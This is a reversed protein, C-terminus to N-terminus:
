SQARIERLAAEGLRLSGAESAAAELERLSQDRRGLEKLLRARLLRAQLYEPAATTAHGLLEVARAHDERGEWYWSELRLLVAHVRTRQASAPPAAPRLRPQRRDVHRIIAIWLLPEGRLGGEEELRIPGSGAPRTQEVLSQLAYDLFPPQDSAPMKGLLRRAEEFEARAVARFLRGLAAASGTAPLAALVADFARGQQDALREAIAKSVAPFSRHDLLITLQSTVVLAGKAKLAELHGPDAALVRDFERHADPARGLDAYLRALGLHAAASGPEAEIARRYLSEIAAVEAMASEFTLTGAFAKSKRAAAEELWKAVPAIKSESAPSPPSASPRTSWVVASAALAAVAAAATLPRLYSRWPLSKASRAAVLAQAFEEAGAPRDERRPSIARRCLADLSRPVDKRISRPGPPPGKKLRELYDAVSKGSVPLQGTLIEFLLVGLAYVDTRADISRVDGSLQEPAMYGPTGLVAGTATVTSAGGDDSRAIGFDMIVPRGGQEVLINSPKLDRHIIGQRHIHDLAKAVTVLRRLAEERDASGPFPTGDVFEMALFTKGHDRGLEHIQVVNPHRVQALFRGERLFRRAPTGGVRETDFVKLAVRRDLSPDRAEYVSGGSGRSIERVIEYRGLRSSDEEPVEPLHKLAAPVDILDACTTCFREDGSGVM